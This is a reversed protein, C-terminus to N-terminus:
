EYVSIPNTEDYDGNMKLTQKFLLYICAMIFEVKFFHIWWDSNWKRLIGWWAEIRQFYAFLRHM